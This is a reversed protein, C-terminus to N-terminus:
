SLLLILMPTMIFFFYAMIVSLFAFLLELFRFGKTKLTLFILLAIYVLVFPNFVIMPYISQTIIGLVTAHGVIFANIVLHELYNLNRFFVWTFFALFCINLLWFYKIKQRLFTGTEVGFQYINSNALEESTERSISFDFYSNLLLYITVTVIAYSLPNFVFRRKGKIYSMITHRPSISLNKLNYLIGKDMSTLGNITSSIVSSWSIRSAMANSGCNPCYNSEFEFDCNICKM